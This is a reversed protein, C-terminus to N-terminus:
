FDFNEFSFNVTLTLGCYPQTKTRQKLIKLKCESNNKDKDTFSFGIVTDSTEKIFPFKKYESNPILLIAKNVGGLVSLLRIDLIHRRIKLQDYPFLMELYDYTKHEKLFSNLFENQKFREVVARDEFVITNLYSNILKFM